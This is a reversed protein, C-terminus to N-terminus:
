NITDYSMKEIPVPEHKRLDEIARLTEDSPNFLKVLRATVDVHEVSPDKYAIQWTPIILSVGAEKAISPIKSKIKEVIDTVSGTSFVQQHMRVQLGPGEIALEKARKEDKAAKAKEAEEFLDKIRKTGEESHWFALAIARSDFTGIPLAAPKPQSVAVGTCAFCLAAACLIAAMIFRQNM